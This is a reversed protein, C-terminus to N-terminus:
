ALLQLTNSAVIEREREREKERGVAIVPVSSTPLLPLVIMVTSPHMSRNRQSPSPVSMFQLNKPVLISTVFVDVLCIVTLKEREREREREEERGAEKWGQVKGWWVV